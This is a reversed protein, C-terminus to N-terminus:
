LYILETHTWIHNKFSGFYFINKEASGHVTWPFFFEYIRRIPLSHSTHAVPRPYVPLFDDISTAQPLRYIWSRCIHEQSTIAGRDGEMERFACITYLLIAYYSFSVLRHFLLTPTFFPTPFPLCHVGEESCADRKGEEAEIFSVRRRRGKLGHVALAFLRTWNGGWIGREMFSGM